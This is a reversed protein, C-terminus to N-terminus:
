SRSSPRTHCQTPYTTRTMHGVNPRTTSSTGTPRTHSFVFDSQVPIEDKLADWGTLLDLHVSNEIGLDTAVDQGTGGGSFVEVFKKPQYTELLDKTVHGSVNGRYSSKGWKGRDQYSLISSQLTM